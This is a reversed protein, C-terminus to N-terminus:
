AAAPAGPDPSPRGSGRGLLGQASEGKAKQLFRPLMGDRLGLVHGVGPSLEVQLVNGGFVGGTM